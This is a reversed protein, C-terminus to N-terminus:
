LNEQTHEKRNLNPSDLVGVNAWGVDMDNPVNFRSIVPVTHIHKSIQLTLLKMAFYVYYIYIFMLGLRKVYVAVYMLSLFTDPSYFSLNWVLIFVTAFICGPFIICSDPIDALVSSHQCLDNVPPNVEGRPVHCLATMLTVGWRAVCM